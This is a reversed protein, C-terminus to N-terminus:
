EPRLNITEMLQGTALSVAAARQVLLDGWTRQAQAVQREQDLTTGLKALEAEAATARAQWDITPPTPTPPATPQLDAPLGRIIQGVGSVSTPVTGVHSPSVYLRNCRGGGSTFSIAGACGDFVIEDIVCGPMLKFEFKWDTTCQRFYLRKASGYEWLFPVGEIREAACDIVRVTLGTAAQPANFWLGDTHVAQPEPPSPVRSIDHWYCNRYTVTGSTIRIRSLLGKGDRVTPPTSTASAPTAVCARFEGGHDNVIEANDSAPDWVRLARRIPMLKTKDLM